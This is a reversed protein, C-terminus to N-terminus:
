NGAYRRGVTIWTSRCWPENDQNRGGLLRGVVPCVHQVDNCAFSDHDQSWAPKVPWASLFDENQLRAQRIRHALDAALAGLLSTAHSIRIHSRSEVARLLAPWGLMM